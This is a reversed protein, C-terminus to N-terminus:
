KQFNPLALGPTSVMARKLQFFAQEAAEFWEFANKKLLNSLPKALIGYGRVFKRYYGTLGLFGRLETVNTPRPWTLMAETKAPDTAVGKASILHGLYELRTQVFSCKSTKVFLSHQQLLSLVTHLHELHSAMTPSYVLIDDM